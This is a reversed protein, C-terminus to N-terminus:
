RLITGGWEIVTFGEREPLEPLQPQPLKIPRELPKATMLVRMVVDPEKDLTLPSLEDIIAQDVFSIAYYPAEDLDEEWYETFDTIESGQLGYLPLIYDFFAPIDSQTVVWGEEILPYGDVLGAWYLYHYDEGTERDIVTGDPYATVDWGDKYEPITKTFGINPEVEVHLDTEEEPYLYIVPKCKEALIIFETNVFEVWRGLPDKWYLLPVVGIFEEYSYKNESLANYSGSSTDVFARTNKQTYLADYREDYVDKLVFLDSGDDTTGTKIFEDDTREVVKLPSCLSGCGYSVRDYIEYEATMVDGDIRNFTIEPTSYSGEDEDDIFPIDIIYEVVLDSPTRAFLCENYTYLQNEPINELGEFTLTDITADHWERMDEIDIMAAFLEGDKKLKIKSDTSSISDPLNSVDDMWETVKIVEPTLVFLGSPYDNGMGSEYLLYISEDALSGNTITGVTYSRSPGSVPLENVENEVPRDLWDVSLEYQEVTPENKLLNWLSPKAEKPEKDEEDVDETDEDNDIYDEEPLSWDDVETEPPTWVMEEEEPTIDEPPQVKQYEKWFFAGAVISGGVIISILIISLQKWNFSSKPAVLDVNQADEVVTEETNIEQNHEEPSM